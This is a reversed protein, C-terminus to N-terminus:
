PHDGASTAWSGRPRRPACAAKRCRPVAAGSRADYGSSTRADLATRMHEYQIALAILGGPRRAIHWALTRRFRNMVIAGHPNDPVVRNPLGHAEAERNGRIVFDEIRQNLTSKKLASHHGRSHRFDHHAASLVLEDPAVM